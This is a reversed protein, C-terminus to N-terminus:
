DIFDVEVDDSEELTFDGNRTIRFLNVTLIKINRFLKQINNRIIEEIPVFLIENHREIEYFRPLNQPIQLFSIKRSENEDRTIIGFVLIKNMLVPFTHYNDYVMPTLMPFITKKFYSNVEKKEVLDLAEIKVIRFGNKAFEPELDDKFHAQQEKFFTRIKGYLHEKFASIWLGSYDLREKGYDLYNYLSGIRIMFFEDLNSSSIAMFNLKEFINRESKRSQDLVRENFYTWSLDRSLYKSSQIQEEIKDNHSVM